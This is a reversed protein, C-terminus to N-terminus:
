LVLFPSKGLQNGLPVGLFCLVNKIQTTDQIEEPMSSSDLTHVDSIQHKVLPLNDLTGESHGFLLHLLVLSELGLPLFSM